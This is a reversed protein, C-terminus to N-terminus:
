TFNAVVVSLGLMSRNSHCMKLNALRDMGVFARGMIVFPVNPDITTPILMRM